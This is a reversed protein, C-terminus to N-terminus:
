SNRHRIGNTRRMLLSDRMTVQLGGVDHDAVAAPHFNEIETEGLQSLFVLGCVDAHRSRRLAEGAFALNDSGHHVHRRFLSFAAGGIFGAPWPFARSQFIPKATAAAAANTAAAAPSSRFRGTAGGAFTVEGIASM